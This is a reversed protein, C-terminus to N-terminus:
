TAAEFEVPRLGKNPVSETKGPHTRTEEFCVSWQGSPADEEVVIGVRGTQDMVGQGVAVAADQLSRDPPDCMEIMSHSVTRFNGTRRRPAATFMVRSSNIAEHRVLLGKTGRPILPRANAGDTGMVFAGPPLDTLLVVWSGIAPDTTGATTPRSPGSASPRGANDDSAPAGRGITERFRRGLRGAEDALWAFGREQGAGSRDLSRERVSVMGAWIKRGFRRVAGIDAAVVIAALIPLGLVILLKLFGWPQPGELSRRAFQYNSSLGDTFPDHSVYFQGTRILLALAIASLGIVSVVPPPNPVNRQVLFSYIWYTLGAYM